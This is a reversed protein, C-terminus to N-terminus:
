KKDRDILFMSYYISIHASAQKGYQQVAKVISQVETFREDAKNAFFYDAIEHNAQKPDHIEKSNLQAHLTKIFSAFAPNSVLANLEAAYEQLFRQGGILQSAAFTKTMRSQKPHAATKSPSTNPIEITTASKKSALEAIAKKYYHEFGPSKCRKQRTIEASIIDFLYHISDVDSKGRLKEIIYTTPETGLRKKFAKEFSSYPTGSNSSPNKKKSLSFAM